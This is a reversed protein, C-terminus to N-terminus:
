AFVLHRVCFLLRLEFVDECLELCAPLGSCADEERAHLRNALDCLLVVQQYM